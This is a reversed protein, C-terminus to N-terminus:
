LHIYKQKPEHNMTITKGKKRPIKARLHQYKTQVRGLAGQRLADRGTRYDWSGDTQAHATKREGGEGGRKEPARGENTM